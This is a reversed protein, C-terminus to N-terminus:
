GSEGLPRGTVHRWHHWLLRAALSRWPSWSEALLTLARHSPREPLGKLHALSAALAVDGHPFIDPRAEAFLLHVQATWPGLGRQAALHAVAEADSMEALADLQLTGSVCAAALARLHGVKPRSLGAVRLEDDTLRAMGGPDLAGPLASFRRWIADAAQNSIQQGLVTRALGGFGRARSRWALPGAVPEIRAFDPDLICLAEIGPRLWAPPAPEATV